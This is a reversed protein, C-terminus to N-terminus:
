QLIFSKTQNKKKYLFSLIMFVLFSCLFFMLFVKKQIDFSLIDALSEKPLPYIAYLSSLILALIVAMSEDFYNKLMRNILKAISFLGILIGILFCFIIPWEGEKLATLTKEYLGFLVLLYSGSLGPVILASSIIFGVPLFILFTLNKMESFLSFQEGFIFLILNIAFSIFFIFLNKGTKKMEMFPKFLSALVLGCVISYFQLSYEEILPSALAVFLIGSSLLGIILPILFSWDWSTWFFLISQKIKQKKFTLFLLLKKLHKIQTKSIEGILKEYIGMIFAMTGGSLGPLAM